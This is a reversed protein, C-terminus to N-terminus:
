PYRRQPNILAFPLFVSFDANKLRQSIEAIGLTQIQTRVCKSDFQNAIRRDNPKLCFFFYSNTNTAALSKNINELASLFQASAGQQPDNNGRRASLSYTRGGEDSGNDNDNRQAALKAKREERRRAMSPKRSPKSAVSAQTVANRDRPHTVKNLAEQGFLEQIYRNSSYSVLNMLDGSIVEGNAEILGDIPYDVEGAFHKVTFAANTNSTAFNNGPLTIMSSGVEIAPNKNDFRKRLSELLQMDTKGRKM